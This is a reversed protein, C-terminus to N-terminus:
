KAHASDHASDLHVITFGAEELSSTVASLHSEKFFIYDTDFTSLALISIKKIALPNLVSSLVGTATFPISGAIHFMRWDDEKTIFSSFIAEPALVSIEHDTKSLSFFSIVRWDTAVFQAHSIKYLCYRTSSFILNM